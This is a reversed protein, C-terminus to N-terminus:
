KCQLKKLSVCKIVAFCLAGAAIIGGVLLWSSMDASRIATIDFGDETQLMGFVLVFGLVVSMVLPISAYLNVVARSDMKVRRVTEGTLCFAKGAFYAAAVTLLTEPVMYASNYALSFVLGEETPVSVGAWVTCGSIVHCIYRLACAIFSGLALAIGSDKIKGRFIGGLGLVAFALVYDLMVIAIVAEASTAYSLNNMGLLMQLMAYVFASFLGWATKHRFAVVLMPLMSFATVGGGFPMQVISVLSLVTALALMIATETLKLTKKM